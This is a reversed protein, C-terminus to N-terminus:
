NKVKLLAFRPGTKSEVACVCMYIYIYIAVGEIKEFFARIFKVGLHKCSM